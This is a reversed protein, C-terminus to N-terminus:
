SEKLVNLYTNLGGKSEARSGIWSRVTRRFAELNWFVIGHVSLM